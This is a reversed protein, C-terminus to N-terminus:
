HYHVYQIYAVKKEYLCRVVASSFRAIESIQDRNLRRKNLQTSNTSNLTGSSVYYTMESFNSVREVDATVM